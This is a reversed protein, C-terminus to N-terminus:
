FPMKGPAEDSITPPKTVRVAYRLVKLPVANQNPDGGKCAGAAKRLTKRVRKATRSAHTTAM